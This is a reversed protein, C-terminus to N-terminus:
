DDFKIRPPNFRKTGSCIHAVRGDIRVKSLYSGTWCNMWLDKQTPKLFEDIVYGQNTAIRTAMRQEGREYRDKLQTCGSSLVAAILALAIWKTKM